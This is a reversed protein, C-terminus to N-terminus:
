QFVFPRLLLEAGTTEELVEKEKGWAEEPRHGADEVHMMTRRLRRPAAPFLDPSKM